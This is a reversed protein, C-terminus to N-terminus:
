SAYNEGKKKFNLKTHIEIESTLSKCMDYITLSAINAGVLAEMEVGTKSESKVTCVVLIRGPETIEISFKISLLALPHCFPILLSTNKAAMTGAIIATAFVPGKKSQIDSGDFLDSVWSPMRIEASAKAERKLNKKHSVDVMSPKLGDLHSFEQKQM